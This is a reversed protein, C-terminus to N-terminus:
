VPNPHEEAGSVSCAAQAIDPIIFRLYCYLGRRFLAAKKYTDNRAIVDKLLGREFDAGYRDKGM